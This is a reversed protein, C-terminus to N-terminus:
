YFKIIFCKIVIVYLRKNMKKLFIMMGLNIYKNMEDLYIFIKIIM